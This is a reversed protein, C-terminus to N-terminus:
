TKTNRKHASSKRKVAVNRVSKKKKWLFIKINQTICFFNFSRDNEFGIGVPCM